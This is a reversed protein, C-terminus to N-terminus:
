LEQLGANRLPGRRPQEGAASRVHNPQRDADRLLRCAPFTSLRRRPTTRRASKERAPSSSAPRRTRPSSPWNTRNATFSTRGRRGRSCFTSTAATPIARGTAITSWCKFGAKAPKRTSATWPRARWWSCPTGPPWSTRASLVEPICLELHNLDIYACGGNSALFRRGWDQSDYDYSKSQPYQGTKAGGHSSWAGGADHVFLFLQLPRLQVAGDSWRSHPIGPIERLLLRSATRATNRPGDIGRVVNGVEVDAGCLKPVPGGRPRTRRNTEASSNKFTM